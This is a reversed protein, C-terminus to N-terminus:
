GVTTGGLSKAMRSPSNQMEVCTLYGIEEGIAKTLIAKGYNMGIHAHLPMAVSLIVDLPLTLSPSSTAIAVPTGVLVVLNVAHYLKTGMKGEDASFSLM